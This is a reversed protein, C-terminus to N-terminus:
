ATPLLLYDVTKVVKDLGMNQLSNVASAFSNLSANSATAKINSSSFYNTKGSKITLKVKAINEDAM